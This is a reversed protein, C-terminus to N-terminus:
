FTNFKLRRLRIIIDVDSSGKDVSCDALLSYRQSPGLSWATSTRYEVETAVLPRRVWLLAHIVLLPQIELSWPDHLHLHSLFHSRHREPLEIRVCRIPRLSEQDLIIAGM